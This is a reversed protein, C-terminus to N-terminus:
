IESDSSRHESMNSILNIILLNDNCTVQNNLNLFYDSKYQCTLFITYGQERQM